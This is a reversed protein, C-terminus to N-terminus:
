QEPVAGLVQIRAAILNVKIKLYSGNYGKKTSNRIFYIDFNYM